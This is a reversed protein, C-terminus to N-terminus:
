RQRSHSLEGVIGGAKWSSAPVASPDLSWRGALQSIKDCNSSLAEAAGLTNSDAAYAFCTVELDKEASTM